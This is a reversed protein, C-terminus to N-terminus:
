DTSLSASLSALVLRFAKQDQTDFGTRLYVTNDKPELGFFGYVNDWPIPGLHAIEAEKKTVGGVGTKLLFGSDIRLAYIWGFKSQKIGGGGLAGGAGERAKRIDRTTSIYAKLFSANTMHQLHMEENELLTRWLHYQAFLKGDQGQGRMFGLVQQTFNAQGAADLTLGERRNM